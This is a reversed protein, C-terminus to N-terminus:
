LVGDALLMELARAPAERYAQPHLTKAIDTLASVFDMIDMTDETHSMKHRHSM